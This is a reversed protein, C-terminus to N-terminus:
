AYVNEPEPDSSEGAYALIIQQRALGQEILAEVLPKDTNDTEIIVKDGVIRALLIMSPKYRRVPHDIINVAYIQHQEDSMLFGHLNAGPGTYQTMAQKLTNVLDAM